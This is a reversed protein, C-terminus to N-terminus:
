AFCYRKLARRRERWDPVLAAVLTWFASSHNLERCHAVEHAVVYWVLTEPLARLSDSLSLARRANCSGFRSRMIKVSFHPLPINLGQAARWM